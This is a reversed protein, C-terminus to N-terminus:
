DRLLTIGVSIEKMRRQTAELATNLERMKADYEATLASMDREISNADFVKQQHEAELERALGEREQRTMTHLPKNHYTARVTAITM